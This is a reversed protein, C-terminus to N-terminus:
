HKAVGLNDLNATFIAHALVVADFLTFCDM